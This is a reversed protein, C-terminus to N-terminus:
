AYVLQFLYIYKRRCICVCRDLSRQYSLCNGCFPFRFPICEKNQIRQYSDEFLMLVTLFIFKSVDKLLLLIERGQLYCAPFHQWISLSFTVEKGAFLHLCIRYKVNWYWVFNVYLLYM